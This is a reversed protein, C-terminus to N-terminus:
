VRRPCRATDIWIRCGRTQWWQARGGNSAKRLASPSYGVVEAAAKIPKWNSPLPQPVPGDLQDEAETRAVLTSITAAQAAIQAAQTAVAQQLEVVQGQLMAVIEATTPAEGLLRATSLM